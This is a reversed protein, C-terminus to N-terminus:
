QGLRGPCTRRLGGKLLAARSLLMPIFAVDDNVLSVDTLSWMIM